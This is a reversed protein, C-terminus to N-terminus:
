DFQKLAGSTKTKFTKLNYKTDTHSKADVDKGDCKLGKTVSECITKPVLFRCINLLTFRLLCFDGANFLIKM